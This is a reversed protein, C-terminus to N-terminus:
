IALQGGLMYLLKVHRLLAAFVTQKLGQTQRVIREELESALHAIAFLRFINYILFFFCFLEMLRRRSHSVTRSTIITIIRDNCQLVVIAQCM